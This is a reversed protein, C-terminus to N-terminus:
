LGIRFTVVIVASLLIGFLLIGILLPLSLYFGVRFIQGFSVSDLEAFFNSRSASEAVSAPNKELSARLPLIELRLKELSRCAESLRIQYDAANTDPEGLEELRILLEKLRAELHSSAETQKRAAEAAASCASMLEHIRFLVDRRFRMFEEHRKRLAERTEPSLLEHPPVPETGALPGAGETESSKKAAEAIQEKIRLLGETVFVEKKM